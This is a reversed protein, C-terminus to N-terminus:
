ALHMHVRVVSGTPASRIQVLDCLHNVLWLGRGSRQEPKPRTRGALPECIHGLDRVECLLTQAEHWMRVTGKGGGYCMSNTALETVALVLDEARDIGLPAREARNSVFRRLTRLERRTFTLEEPETSPEPLTGDFPGPARCPALYDESRRSIGGASLFPHTSRATAIVEEELGDVDYPCLLRWRHAGPFAVNLLSEHRQCETLEAPGRGPWIPEGIGQVSREKNAHDELFQSWVPIIRAPNSGLALMDAFYVRKAECGLARKLQEIRPKTVAVLVPEGAALANDIFPMTGALFGDAGRYLLTEHHFSCEHQQM